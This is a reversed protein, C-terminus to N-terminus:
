KKLLWKWVKSQMPMITSMHHQMGANQSSENETPIDSVLIRKQEPFANLNQFRYVVSSDTHMTALDDRIQRQTNYADRDHLFSYYSSYSTKSPASLWPAPMDFHELFDQPGSLMIVKHVRFAHAIYSVHGAGQSHGALTVREWLIHDGDLFYNWGEIPRTKALYIVLKTIRNVISNLTDVNVSDSVPTGFDIEQRFKDFAEKDTSNVLSATNRNNPYDLSIAHYGEIAAVSDFSRMVDGPGTTGPISILLKKASTNSTNVTIFHGSHIMTIGLYTSDPNIYYSKIQAYCVNFLLFITFLFTIIIKM